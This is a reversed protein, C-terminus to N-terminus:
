GVSVAVVQPDLHSPNRAWKGSGSWTQGVFSVSRLRYNNAHAVAWSTAQWGTQGRVAVGLVNWGMEDASAQGLAARTPATGDYGNLHSSFGATVEGTLAVALARAEDEWAAYAGSSSNLQVAQAADAVPMTQWGPIHALRGYFALAAYVSDVLQAQGLSLTCPHNTAGTLAWGLQVVSKSSLAHIAGVSCGAVAAIATVALLAMRRRRRCARSRRASIAKSGSLAIRDVEIM